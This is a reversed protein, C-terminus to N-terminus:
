SDHHKFHLRCHWYDSNQIPCIITKMGWVNTNADYTRVRAWLRLRLTQIKQQPRLHHYSVRDRPGQLTKAGLDHTAIRMLDAGDGTELSYRRHFLYRALAFDPSEKGHDVM